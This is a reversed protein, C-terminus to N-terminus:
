TIRFRDTTHLGNMVAYRMGGARTPQYRDGLITAKLWRDDM